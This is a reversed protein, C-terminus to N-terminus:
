PQYKDPPDKSINLAGEASARLLRPFHEGWKGSTLVSLEYYKDKMVVSNQM